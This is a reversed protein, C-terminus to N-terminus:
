RATDNFVVLACFTRRRSQRINHATTILWPNNTVNAIRLNCADKTEFHENNIWYLPPKPPCELPWRQEQRAALTASSPPEIAQTMWRRVQLYATCIGRCGFPLAPHNHNHNTLLDSGNGHREKVALTKRSSLWSASLWCCVSFATSTHYAPWRTSINARLAHLSV